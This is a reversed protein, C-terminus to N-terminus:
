IRTSKILKLFDDVDLDLVEAVGDMGLTESAGEKSEKGLKQIIAAPTAKSFAVLDMRLGNAFEEIDESTADEIRDTMDAWILARASAQMFARRLKKMDNFSKDAQKGIAQETAGLVKGAKDLTADDVDAM